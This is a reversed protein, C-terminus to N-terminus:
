SLACPTLAPVWSLDSQFGREKWWGLCVKSNGKVKRGLYPNSQGLNKKRQLLGWNLDRGM